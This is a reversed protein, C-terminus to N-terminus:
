LPIVVEARTLLAAIGNKDLVRFGCSQAAAPADSYCEVGSAQFRGLLFAGDKWHSDPESGLVVVQIKSMSRCLLDISSM